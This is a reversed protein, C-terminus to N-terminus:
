ANNRVPQSPLAIRIAPLTLVAAVAAIQWIAGFGLVGATGVLLSLPGAAALGVPGLVFAGFTDYATVRALTEQPVQRQTTTTYLTGCVASGIGAVFAAACVWPLPRGTALAASPLAFGVTAATAVFLPRRPSRGLMAVGGAVAGVGYLAMVLGWSTAGGLRQQAIVPGLVLFPAWVLFNFLGFHVSSVWLWTRSRFETWGERLEAAFSSARVAPLVTRPLLTLAVVSVGYSAADLALVCSAGTTATLLGALVPGAISAGSSAVGLLANADSLAGGRTVNPILASLAPNFLAEAAGWVGVLGVLTWLGPGDGLLAVALTAQTLCRVTDAALMV